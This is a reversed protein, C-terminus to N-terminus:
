TKPAIRWYLEDLKQQHFYAAYATKRNDVFTKIDPYQQYMSSGLLYMDNKQSWLTDNDLFGFKKFVYYLYEQETIPIAKDQMNKQYWQWWTSFISIFSPDTFIWTKQLCILYAVLDNKKFLSTFLEHYYAVVHVNHIIKWGSLHFIAVLSIYFKDMITKYAKRSMFSSQLEQMYINETDNGEMLSDIEGDRIKELMIIMDVIWKKKTALQRMQKISIEKEKQLTHFKEDLASKEEWSKQKDSPLDQQEEQQLIDSIEDCNKQKQWIRQNAFFTLLSSIQHTISNVETQLSSICYEVEHLDKNLTDINKQINVKGPILLDIYTELTHRIWKYKSVFNLFPKMDSETRAINKEINSLKKKANSINDKYDDIESLWMDIMAHIRIKRDQTMALYKRKTMIFKSYLPDYVRKEKPPKPLEEKSMKDINAKPIKPHKTLYVRELYEYRDKLWLYSKENHDLRLNLNAKKMVAHFDTKAQSQDTRLNKLVKKYEEIKKNTIIFEDDLITMIKTLIAKFDYKNPTDVVNKQYDIIYLIYKKVLSFRDIAPIHRDDLAKAIVAWELAAFIYNIHDFLYDFEQKIVDPWWTSCTKLIDFTYTPDTLINAYDIGHSSVIEGEVNGVTIDKKTFFSKIFPFDSHKKILYFIDQEPYEKYDFATMVSPISPIIKDNDEDYIPYTFHNGVYDLLVARDRDSLHPTYKDASSSHSSLHPFQSIGHICYEIFIDQMDKDEAYIWLIDKWLKNKAILSILRSRIITYWPNMQDHVVLWYEKTETLTLVAYVIPDNEKKLQIQLPLCNSQSSSQNKPIQILFYFHQPLHYELYYARDSTRYTSLTDFICKPIGSTRINQIYSNMLIKIDEDVVMDNYHNRTDIIYERTSEDLPIKPGINNEEGSSLLSLQPSVVQLLTRVKAQPTTDSLHMHNSCADILSELCVDHFYQQSATTNENSQKITYWYMKEDPDYYPVITKKYIRNGLLHKERMLAYLAGIKKRTDMMYNLFVMLDFWSHDGIQGHYNHMTHMPSNASFFGKKHYYSFSIAQPLLDYFSPSAQNFDSLLSPSFEMTKTLQDQCSSVENLFINQDRILKHFHSQTLSIITKSLKELDEDSLTLCKSAFYSAILRNDEQPNQLSRKDSPIEKSSSVLFYYWIIKVIKGFYAERQQANKDLMANRNKRRWKKEWLGSLAYFIHNTLLDIQKPNQDVIINFFINWIIESKNKKEYVEEENLLEM